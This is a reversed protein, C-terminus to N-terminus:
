HGDTPLPAKASFHWRRNDFRRELPCLMHITQAGTSDIRWAVDGDAGVTRRKHGAFHGPM